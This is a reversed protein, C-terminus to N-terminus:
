IHQIAATTQPKKKQSKQCPSDIFKIRWM